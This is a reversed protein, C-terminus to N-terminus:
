RFNLVHYMDVNDRDAGSGLAGFRNGGYEHALFATVLLLISSPSMFSSNNDRRVFQGRGEEVKKTVNSRLALPFKFWRVRNSFTM